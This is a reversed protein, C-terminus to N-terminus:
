HRIKYGIKLLHVAIWSVVILASGVIGLSGWPSVDSVGFFGYRLGDIMYFFPSRHMVTQCEAQLALM